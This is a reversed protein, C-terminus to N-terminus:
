PTTEARYRAAWRASRLGRSATTVVVPDEDVGIAELVSGITALPHDVLSEYTVRIPDVGLKIYFREWGVEQAHIEDLRQEIAGRDYRVRRLRRQEGWWEGGRRALHLSVAQAVRDLRTLSVWVAPGILAVPDHIRTIERMHNFHVKFGFLGSSSTRASRVRDFYEALRLPGWRDAFGARVAPNLYEGPVGAGAAELSRALMTSGTRPVSAIAYTRRRGEFPPLDFAASIRTPDGKM